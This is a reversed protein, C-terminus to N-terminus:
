ALVAWICISNFESFQRYSSSATGVTNSAVIKFSYERNESLNGILNYDQLMIPYTVAESSSSMVELSYYLM